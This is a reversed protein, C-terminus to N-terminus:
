STRSSGGTCSMTGRSGIIKDRRRTGKLVDNEPTGEIRNFESGKSSGKNSSAM